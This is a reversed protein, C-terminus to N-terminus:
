YDYVHIKYFEPNGSPSDSLSSVITSPSAPLILVVKNTEMVSSIFGTNIWGNAQLAGTTLQTTGMDISDVLTVSTSESCRFIRIYWRGSSYYWLAFWGRGEMDMAVSYRGYLALPENYLQTNCYYAGQVATVSSNTIIGTEWSITSLDRRILQISLMGTTSNRLLVFVRGDPRTSYAYASSTTSSMPNIDISTNSITGHYGGSRFTSASPSQISGNVSGNYACHLSASVTTNNASRINASKQWATWTGVLPDSGTPIFRSVALYAGVTDSVNIIYCLNGDTTKGLGKYQGLTSLSAYDGTPFAPPTGISGWANVRHDWYYIPYLTTIATNSHFPLIFLFGGVNQVTTLADNGGNPIFGMGFGNGKAANNFAVWGGTVAEAAVCLVGDGGTPTNPFYANMPDSPATIVYFSGDKGSIPFPLVRAGPTVVYPVGYPQYRSVVYWDWNVDDIASVIGVTTGAALTHGSINLAPVPVTTGSLTVTTTVADDAVTNITGLIAGGTGGGGGSPDEWDVAYNANSIKTLVQGDLGGPPILSNDGDYVINTPLLTSIPQWGVDYDGPGQKVPLDNPNGGTPLGDDIRELLTQQQVSGIISWDSYINRNNNVVRYRFRVTKDYTEPLTNTLQDIVYPLESQPIIIKSM